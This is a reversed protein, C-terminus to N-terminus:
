FLLACMLVGFSFIETSLVAPRLCGEWDNVWRGVWADAALSTYRSIHEFIHFAVM